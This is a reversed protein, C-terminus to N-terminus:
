RRAEGERVQDLVFKVRAEPSEKPLVILQYGNNEYWTYLKEYIRVAEEFTQDRESDNRYIEKWPPAIFVKRNYRQTILHNIISEFYDRDDQFLMLASDLFSRDFFRIQMENVHSTYNVLDTEFIQRAFEPPAPRPTLGNRLRERIIQRATEPVIVFGKSALSELLSTKGGGPGGSIIFFNNRTM